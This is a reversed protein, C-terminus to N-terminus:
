KKNTDLVSEQEEKLARLDKRISEAEERSVSLLLQKLMQERMGVGEIIRQMDEGDLQYHKIFGAIYETHQIKDSM